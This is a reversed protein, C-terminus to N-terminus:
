YHWKDKVGAEVFLGLHNLLNPLLFIWIADNQLCLFIARFPEMKEVNNFLLEFHLIFLVDGTSM